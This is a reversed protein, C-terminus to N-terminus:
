PHRRRSDRTNPKSLTQGVAIATAIGNADIESITPTLSTWTVGQLLPQISGDSFIGSLAFQLTTGKTISPSSPTITISQLTAPLVTLLTTDTFSGVTATITIANPNSAVGTVPDVTATKTDSSLYTANSLDQTTSDSFTGTVTFQVQGGAPISAGDPSIDISRLVAATVNM